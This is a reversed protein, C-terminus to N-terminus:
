SDHKKYQSKLIKILIYQGIPFSIFVGAFIGAPHTNFFIDALHGLFAFTAIFLVNAVLIIFRIQRTYGFM